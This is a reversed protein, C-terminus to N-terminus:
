TENKKEACNIKVKQQKTRKATNLHIPHMCANQPSSIVLRGLLLINDGKAKGLLHVTLGAGCKEFLFGPKLFCSSM